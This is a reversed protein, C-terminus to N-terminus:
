SISENKDEKRKYVKYNNYSLGLIKYSIPLILIVELFISYFLLNKILNNKTLLIVTIYILTIIISLTKYVVRKKKNILPRKITDAPAYIIILILLVPLLLLLYNNFQTIKILYPFLTFTTISLFWCEISKKTHLGFAFLRLLGYTVFLLCLEKITHIFYSLLLIVVLKVITHCLTDLGYRIEKLKVEDYNYIKKINNIISDIM